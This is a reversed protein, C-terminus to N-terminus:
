KVRSREAAHGIRSSSLWIVLGVLGPLRVADDDVRVARPEGVLRELQVVLWCEVYEVPPMSTEPVPWGPQDEVVIMTVPILKRRNWGPDREGLAHCSNSVGKLFQGRASAGSTQPGPDLSEVSETGGTDVLVKRAALVRVAVDEEPVRSRSRVRVHSGDLARGEVSHGKM